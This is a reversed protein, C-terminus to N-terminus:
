NKKDIESQVRNLLFTIKNDFRNAGIYNLHNQDFFYKDPWNETSFDFYTARILTNNIEDQYSNITKQPTTRKHGDSVPPRIILLYRCNKRCFNILTLFTSDIEYSGRLDSFHCNNTIKKSDIVGSQEVTAGNGDGFPLSSNFILSHIGVINIKGNFYLNMLSSKRNNENFSKSNQISFLLKPSIGLFITDFKNNRFKRILKVKKLILEYNEGGLTANYFDHRNLQGIESDGFIFNDHKSINKIRYFAKRKEIYYNSIGVIIIISAFPILWFSLKFVFKKM